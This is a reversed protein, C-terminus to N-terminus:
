ERENDVDERRSTSVSWNLPNDINFTPSYTRTNVFYKSTLGRQVIQNGSDDFLVFDQNRIDNLLSFADDRKKELNASNIQQLAGDQNAILQYIDFTVLDEQITKLIGVASTLPLVYNVALYGNIVGEVRTEISQITETMVVTSSLGQILYSQTTGLWSTYTSWRGM